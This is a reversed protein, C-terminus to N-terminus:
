VGYDVLRSEIDSYSKMQTGIVPNTSFWNNKQLKIWSVDICTKGSNIDSKKINNKLRYNMDREWIKLLKPIYKVKIIYGSTTKCNVVKQLNRSYKNIKGNCALLIVNWNTNSNIAKNVTKFPNKNNWQFDDELIIVCDDKKNERIALKLAKIHSLGCGTAGNSHKIADIRTVKNFPYNIINLQKIINKKRDKRHKLNIYYLKPNQFNERKNTPKKVPRNFAYFLLMCIFLAFIYIHINKFKM